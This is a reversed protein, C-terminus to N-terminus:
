NNIECFEYSLSGDTYKMRLVVEALENTYQHLTAVKYSRKYMDARNSKKEGNFYYVYRLSRNVTALYVLTDNISCVAQLRPKSFMFHLNTELNRRIYWKNLNKFVYGLKARNDDIVIDFVNIGFENLFGGALTNDNIKKLILIGSIESTKYRIISKFKLVNVSDFLSTTVNKNVPIETQMNKCVFNNCSTLILLFSSVFLLNKM